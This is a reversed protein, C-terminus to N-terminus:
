DLLLLLDDGGPARADAATEVVGNPGASLVMPREQPTLWGDANVLYANGWPDPALGGAVYPGAWREGGMAPRLLADDLARGEGGQGFPQGAPINGPGYLWAVNTRGQVGTPLFLTDQAYRALGEGISQMDALASIRRSEGAEEAVAPMLVGSLAVLVSLGVLAELMGPRAATRAVANDM